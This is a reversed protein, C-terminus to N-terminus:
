KGRARLRWRGRGVKAFYDPASANRGFNESDSSHEEIVRRVTAETTSIQKEGRSNRAEAVLKYITALEAEGGVRRFADLVDDIWRIKYNVNVKAEQTADCTPDLREKNSNKVEKQGLLIRRLIDNESAEPSRRAAWIAAFVDLDVLIEKM